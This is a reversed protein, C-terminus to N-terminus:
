EYAPMVYKKAEQWQLSNPVASGLVGYEQHMNTGMIKGEYPKGNLWFGDTKKFEISRIGIRKRFGDLTDGAMSQITVDLNYLYPREPSWM